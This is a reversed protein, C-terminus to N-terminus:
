RRITEGGDVVLVQGTVHRAASSALFLIAGAVDEADGIRALPTRAIVADLWGPQATLTRIMDTQTTGPAVANIRVGRGGWELALQRVMQNLAAKSIGYAASGEAAVFASISSVMVMAGGGAKAIEPLAARALHWPGGINTDLVKAWAEPALTELPDAVPNVAANAVMIDLRGYHRITGEVLAACEEPRGVHAAVAIADHGVAVLEARVAECAEPKRSSVVVRAGAEALMRVTALGIGRTSGTVVAVKGDLSFPGAM